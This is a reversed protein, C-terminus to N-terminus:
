SCLCVEMNVAVTAAVCSSWLLGTPNLQGRDSANDPVALPVVLLPIDKVGWGDDSPLTRTVPTWAARCPRAPPPAATTTTTTIAAPQHVTCLKPAGDCTEGSVTPLLPSGEGRGHALLGGGGGGSDGCVHGAADQLPGRPTPPLSEQVQRPGQPGAAAPPVGRTASALLHAPLLHASLLHFGSAEMPMTRVAAM